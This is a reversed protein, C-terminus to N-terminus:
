SANNVGLVDPWVKKLDEPTQAAEIDPHSTIDRLEQKKAVIASTDVNQELARQFEVDLQQLLPKRADRMKDRWIDKAKDMNIVIM